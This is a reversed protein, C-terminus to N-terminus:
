KDNNWHGLKRLLYDSWQDLLHVLRGVHWWGEDLVEKLMPNTCSGDGWNDAHKTPTEGAKHRTLHAM